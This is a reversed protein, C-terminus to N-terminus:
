NRKFAFHESNSSHLQKVASQCYVAFRRVSVVRQAAQQVVHTRSITSSSSSSSSSCCCSCTTVGGEGEGMCAVGGAGDGGHAGGGQEVGRM